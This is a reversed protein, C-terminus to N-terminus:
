GRRRTRRQFSRIRAHLEPHANLWAIVARRFRPVSHMLLLTGAIIMPLGLPIPLPTVPIGVLILLVGTAAMIPKLILAIM